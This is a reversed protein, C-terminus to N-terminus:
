GHGLAFIDLKDAGAKRLIKCCANLTAGTTFVDDVVVYRRSPDITAKKRVAFANKLNKQREAHTLLTQTHTWRIRELLPEVVVNDLSDALTQAILESQNYTRKWGRFVHLPVPVLVAGELYDRTAPAQLALKALDALAYKGRKYKLAHILPRAPSKLRFATHGRDYVPDLDVCHPCQRPVSAIGYFPLGCRKCQPPVFIEVYKFCENCLYQLSANDEVPAYCYLCDRPYVSDLGKRLARKGLALLIGKGPM